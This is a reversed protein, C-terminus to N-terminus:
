WAFGQCRRAVEDIREQRDDTSSGLMDRVFDRIQKADFCEEAIDEGEVGRGAEGDEGPTGDEGGVVVTGTSSTEASVSVTVASSRPSERRASDYAAVTYTHTGKPLREKFSTGTTDEVLTDNRYVRYGAAGDRVPAWSLTVQANVVEVSLSQPASITAAAGGEDGPEEYSPPPLSIPTNWRPPTRPGPDDDSADEKDDSSTATITDPGTAEGDAGAESDVDERGGTTTDDNEREEEADEENVPSYIAVWDIQWNGEGECPGLACSAVFGLWMDERPIAEPDTVTEWVEGDITYKLSDETWEVGFTHWDDSTLGSDHEYQTTSDRYHTFAYWHRDGVLDEIINIEPPWKCNCAPWLLPTVAFNKVKDARMRIEYKGYTQLHRPNQSLQLWSTNSDQVPIDYVGDRVDALGGIWSYNYKFSHPALWGDSWNLSGDFDETYLLDWGPLDDTPVALGSPAYGRALSGRPRVTEERESRSRRSTVTRDNNGSRVTRREQVTDPTNDRVTDARQASPAITETSSPAPSTTELSEDEPRIEVPVEETSDEAGADASESADEEGVLAAVIPILEEVLRDAVRATDAAGFHAGPTPGGDMVIGSETSRSMTANFADDGALTRMGALIQSGSRDNFGYPVWVFHYPTTRSSQGGLADRVLAADEQVAEVWEGETLAANSQDYENHMWLTVVPNDKFEVPVVSLHRLLAAQQGDQAWDMFATSSFITAANDDAYPDAIIEVDVEPLAAELGSELTWIDGHYHMMHANSQGRLLISVDAALTSLPLVMGCFAAMGAAFYYTRRLVIEETMM